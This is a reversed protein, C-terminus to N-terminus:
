AGWAISVVNTTNFTDSTCFAAANRFRAQYHRTGPTTVLGRTAVPVDAGSPYSSAGSANVKTGLRVFPGSQCRLGDGFATPTTLGAAQFYLTSSNPMRAGDLVLTDDALSARGRARLTGGLGQSHLCGARDGVASANGCPCAASSGDGFCSLAGIADCALLAVIGNVDIGQFSGVTDVALFLERSGDAHDIAAMDTAPGSSGILVTQWTSGNWARLGQFVSDGSAAYLRRGAGSGDDFAALSRVMGPLASGVASWQVGNWRALFAIPQSGVQTFRGGMYLAAGSGDDHVYLCEAGLSSTGGGVSDWTAGNWRVIGFESGDFLQGAAYLAPGTGDDFVALAKVHGTVGPMPTWASGDWSHMPGVGNQGGVALRMGGASPYAAAVEITKGPFGNGFPTFTTGDFSAVSNCAAGGAATFNGVVVLEEGQGRDFATMDHVSGDISGPVTWRDGDWRAFGQVRQGDALTAQKSGAYVRAGQGDDWTEVSSARNMGHALTTWRDINWRALRLATVGPLIGDVFSFHGGVILEEGDGADFRTLARVSGVLRTGFGSWGTGDHVAVGHTLLGDVHTFDGGVFLRPAGSEEAALLAHVSDDAGSGFAQWAARNWTAIRSASVGGASAFDGGAVLQGRFSALARVPGDTGTGVAQWTMGDWRAVNSAAVGGASGFSGGAYLAPGTGDDHVALALVEGDLGGGIESWAGARWRALRLASGSGIELFNGGAYLAIGGGDDFSALASVTGEPGGAIPQWEAGVRQAVFRLGGEYFEGSAVLRTGQGFDFHTLALVTGPLVDYHWRERDWGRLYGVQGAVILETGPVSDDVLLARVTADFDTKAFGPVVAPCPTSQPILALLLAAHLM